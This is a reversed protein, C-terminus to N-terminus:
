PIMTQDEGRHCYRCLFFETGHVLALAVRVRAWVRFAVKVPDILRYEINEVQFLLHCSLLDQLVRFLVPYAWKFVTQVDGAPGVPDDAIVVIHKVRIHAQFAVERVSLFTIIQEEHILGM